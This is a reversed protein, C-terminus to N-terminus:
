SRVSIHFIIPHSGAPSTPADSKVEGDFPSLYKGATRHARRSSEGREGAESSRRWRHGLIVGGSELQGRLNRRRQRPASAWLLVASSRVVAVGTPSVCPQSLLSRRSSSKRWCHRVGDLTPVLNSRRKRRMLNTMRALFEQHSLSYNAFFFFRLYHENNEWLLFYYVYVFMCM